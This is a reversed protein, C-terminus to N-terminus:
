EKPIGLKSILLSNLKRFETEIQDWGWHKEDKTKARWSIEWLAKGIDTDKKILRMDIRVLAGEIFGVGMQVGVWNRDRIANRLTDRSLILTEKAEDSIAM